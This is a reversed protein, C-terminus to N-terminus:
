PPLSVIGILWRLASGGIRVVPYHCMLAVDVGVAIGASSQLVTGIRGTPSAGAGSQPTVLPGSNYRRLTL